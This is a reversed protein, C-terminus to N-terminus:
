SSSLITHILQQIIILKQQTASKYQIALKPLVNLCISKRQFLVASYLVSRVLSHCLWLKISIRSSAGLGVEENKM